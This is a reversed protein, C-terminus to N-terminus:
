FLGGNITIVSGAIRSSNESALFVALKAIEDPYARRQFPLAPSTPSTIEVSQGPYWNRIETAVPGPAIANVLIGYPLLIKAIGRTLGIVGWKSIGYPEKAGRLGADSAINIIKGSQKREIMLNAASQCIFYLGKLNTDIVIDWGKESVELFKEKVIIGANNVVTDLGELKDAIKEIRQDIKDIRSIDWEFGIAKRGMNQIEEILPTLNAYKRSTVAIDAGEAAYALAIAKGIGRSAGTVLAKKGALLM